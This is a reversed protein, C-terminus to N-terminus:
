RALWGWRRVAATMLRRIRIEDPDLRRLAEDPVAPTGVREFGPPLDLALPSLGHQQVSRPGPVHQDGSRADCRSSM